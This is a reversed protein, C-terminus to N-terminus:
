GNNRGKIKWVKVRFRGNVQNQTWAGLWTGGAIAPDTATGNKGARVIIKDTGLNHAARIGWAGYPDAPLSVRDTYSFWGPEFWQGNLEHEVVVTVAFGPFPNDIVQVSNGYLVGPTAASGGPYIVVFGVDTRYAGVAADWSAAGQGVIFIPGVDKTPLNNPAFIPLGMGQAALQAYHKASFEGGSVTAGTKTAWEAALAASGSAGQAKQGAADASAAAQAASQAAQSRSNAADQASGGAAAANDDAAGAAENVQAQLVNAEQVFTPLAAMFADAREPFNAPDSRSPPNPLATISM